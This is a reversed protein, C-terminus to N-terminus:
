HEVHYGHRNWETMGGNVIQVNSFGKRTLLQAAKISRKDTRCVIAIARETYDSIENLRSSLVEVPVNTAKAIHGQEGAFEEATRVDLVLVDQDHDLQHKLTETNLSPGRRIRGIIRPLFAVIALLALALLAKQITGESGSIAERGAFGLYTYAIAGPLMCVYSAIIYHLLKIRTLGLAYNLLNFPFLPVLRVFAVFRWGEGEVGEKLQKLRGGTKQEVWHSALYRAVLFALTVGQIPFAPLPLGRKPSISVRCPM